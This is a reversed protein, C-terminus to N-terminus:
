APDESRIQRFSEIRGRCASCRRCPRAGDRYCSWTLELPVGRRRALAIVEADSKGAFPLVISVGGNLRELRRFFAARADEFVKADSRNHGAVVVSAGRTEAVSLAISHIVLNRAPIYGSPQQRLYPASVRLLPVGARRAIAACARVEGRPREAGDFSLATARYRERAWWLAAASDIGGSVLVLAKKM